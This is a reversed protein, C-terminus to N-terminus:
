RSEDEEEELARAMRDFAADWRARTSEIWTAVDELPRRNSSLFHERGVKRRKVLRAKELVQIHKSITNLSEGFPEAIATVRAEGRSLKELIARRTPHALAQLTTDLTTM